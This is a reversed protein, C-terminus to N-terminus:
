DPRASRIAKGPFVGDVPKSDRVVFTGGVLVHAIGRSPIDGKEYTSLDLIRDADFVTVDADAGVQIRGKKRMQPAAGSLREAPMLTMKRLADMLPLGKKDRAYRGLARAFTGAGRPHAPGNFFPIGDSAVMVDPQATIWENVEESRGGHIIVWGGEERFRQFSERTLREGTLPWQLNQFREDPADVWSDFLASELRTSGATYPYAETTVDLGLARAGRIMSLTTKGLDGASSNMHVIHLSAGTAAADAIVEQFAGLTGGSGEGRLHVYIPVREERAIEFLRLIEERTAGPTYTIGLGFGLGGEEVGKVMLAELERMEADSTAKYAYDTVKMLRQHNPDAEDGLAWSGVDIGHFLKARAPLHGVTAGYHIVAKGERSALWAAVPYVGIEMELATTVGDLAQLRNSVPDQGHAHLDIFGPAVVLGTADVVLAGELPEESVAVITGGEIGVNRVADLGTEPDMVRGGRLVIEIALLVFSSLNM